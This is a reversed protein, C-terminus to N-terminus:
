AEDERERGEGGFCRRYLNNKVEVSGGPYYRIIPIATLIADLTHAAAAAACVGNGRPSAAAAAAAACIRIKFIVGKIDTTGGTNM